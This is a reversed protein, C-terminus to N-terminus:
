AGAKGCSVLSLACSQLTGTDISIYPSLSDNQTHGLMESLEAVSVEAELLRRGFARRFSHFGLRRNKDNLVNASNMCRLLIAGVASNKLRRFPSNTSLFICLDDSEPRTHILYNAIANGSEVPLPLTLVAGTKTQAIRIENTHWCIDQRRLNAIDCSRLGTQFALMLIAYNRKGIPTATDPVALIREIEEDSFGEYTKRHSACFKPVTLSLDIETYGNVYLHEFFARVGQLQTRLGGAYKRASSTIIKAMVPPTIEDISYIGYYELELLLQRARGRYQKATSEKVSRCRIVGNYFDNLLRAFTDSLKRSKYPSLYCWILTGTKHMEDLLSVGKRFMQFAIRHLAGSKYSKQMNSVMEHLLNPSYQTLGLNIHARLIRDFVRQYNYATLETFGFKIMAQKTRAILNWINDPDATEAADPQRHLPNHLVEWPRCRLMDLRHNTHYYKLLEGGRRIMDWKGLLMSGCEYELRTKFIFEDIVEEAYETRNTQECYRILEGFATYRYSKLKHLSAGELEMQKLASEAIAKISIKGM